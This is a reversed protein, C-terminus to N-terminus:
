FMNLTIMIIEYNYKVVSNASTLYFQKSM